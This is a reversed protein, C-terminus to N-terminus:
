DFSNYNDKNKISKDFSGSNKKDTQIKNVFSNNDKASGNKDKEDNQIINNKSPGVNGNNQTSNLKNNNYAMKPQKAVIDKKNNLSQQM